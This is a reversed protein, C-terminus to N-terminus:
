EYAVLTVESLTLWHNRVGWGEGYFNYGNKITKFRYYRAEVTSEEPIVLTDGEAIYQCYEKAPLAKVIKSIETVDMGGLKVWKDWAAEPEGDGTYAYIEYILPDNNVYDYYHYTIFRALRVPAGADITFSDGHGQAAQDNTTTLEWHKYAFDFGEINSTHYDSKNVMWKGDFLYESASNTTGVVGDNELAFARMKSKDPMYTPAEYSIPQVEMSFALNAYSPSSFVIVAKKDTNLLNAPVLDFVIETASKSAERMWAGDTISYTWDDINSTVKVTYQEGNKVEVSEDGSATLEAYNLPRVEVTKEFVPDSPSTFTIKAAINTDFKVSPDLDFVLEEESKSAEKLWAGDTLTYTWDEVNAAIKLTLQEGKKVLVTQAATIDMEAVYAPQSVPVREISGDASTFELTSTREAGTVNRDVGLKLTTKGSGHKPTIKFWPDSVTLTWNSNSNVVFDIISADASLEISEPVGIYAAEDNECATVCLAAFALLLMKFTKM